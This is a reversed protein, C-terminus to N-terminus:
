NWTHNRKLCTKRHIEITIIQWQCYLIAVALLFPVLDKRDDVLCIPNYFLNLAIISIKMHKVHLKNPQFQHKKKDRKMWQFSSLM